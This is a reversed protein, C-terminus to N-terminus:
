EFAEKAQKILEIALDMQDPINKKDDYIECFIDKAYSTYMAGFNANSGNQSTKIKPGVMTGGPIKVVEIKDDRERLKTDIMERLTAKTYVEPKEIGLRKAFEIQKETATEEM